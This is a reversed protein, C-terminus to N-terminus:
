FKFLWGCQDTSSTLTTILIYNTKKSRLGRIRMKTILKKAIIWEETMRLHIANQSYDLIIKNKNKVKKETGCTINM